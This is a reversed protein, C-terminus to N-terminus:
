ADLDIGAEGRGLQQLFVAADDADGGPIHAYLFGAFGAAVILRAHFQAGGVRQEGLPAAARQGLLEDLAEVQARVAIRRGVREADLLQPFDRRLHM